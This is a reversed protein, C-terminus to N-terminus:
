SSQSGDKEIDEKLIQNIRDMKFKNLRYFARWGGHGSRTNGTQRVSKLVLRRRILDILLQYAQNRTNGMMECLEQAMVERNARYLKLLAIEQKKEVM